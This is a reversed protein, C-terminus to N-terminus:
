AHSEEAKWAEDVVREINLTTETHGRAVLYLLFEINGEPGRIPSATLGQVAYALSRAQDVVRELVEEHVKPQRVVGGRGLKAPGAEFQPKVLAVVTAGDKILPALPELLLRLGIFSADVSAGDLPIERGLGSLTLYRANTRELVVVRPDQRLKWDLQGYGVDVAWVRAAGHQLWCDTFGGTSAGVDVVDWGTPDIGFQDLAHNLKVGGRSVFPLAATVAVQDDPEVLRGSKRETRGNVEVKGAMILAQARNRSEVAGM